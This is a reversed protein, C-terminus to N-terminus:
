DYQPVGWAYRVAQRTVKKKMWGGWSNDAEEPVNELAGPLRRRRGQLWELSPETQPATGQLTNSADIPQGLEAQAGPLTAKVQSRASVESGTSNPASVASDLLSNLRANLPLRTVRGGTASQAATTHDDPSKSAGIATPLCTPPDVSPYSPVVPNRSMSPLSPGTRDLHTLTQLVPSVSESNPTFTEETGDDERPATPLFGNSGTDSSTPTTM